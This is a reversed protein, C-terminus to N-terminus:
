GATITPKKIIVTYKSDIKLYLRKSDAALYFDFLWEKEGTSDIRNVTHKVGATIVEFSM